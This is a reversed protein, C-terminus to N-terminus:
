ATHDVADYVRALRQHEIPTAIPSVNADLLTHFRSRRQHVIHCPATMPRYQDKRQRPRWNCPRSVSRRVDASHTYSLTPFRSGCFVIPVPLRLTVSLAPHDLAIFSRSRSGSAHGADAVLAYGVHTGLCPPTPSSVIATITRLIINYDNFLSLTIVWHARCDFITLLLLYVLLM